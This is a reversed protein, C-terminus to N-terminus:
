GSSGLAEQYTQGEAMRDYLLQLTDPSGALFRCRTDGRSLCEVEMVGLTTNSVRGLFDALMGSSLHCSPYQSGAAPDAESWDVSDLAIVAQAIPAVTLSGWGTERFFGTLTEGLHRVDLGAPEEIGFRGAMWGRYAHYIAEGGAFGAEQLWTATQMGVDRELSARLQHLSRRSMALCQPSVLLASATM